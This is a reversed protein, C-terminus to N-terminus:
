RSQHCSWIEPNNVMTSRRDHPLAGFTTKCDTFISKMKKEAGNHRATSYALMRENYFNKMYTQLTSYCDFAEKQMAPKVGWSRVLLTDIYASVAPWSAVREAALERKIRLMLEDDGVTDEVLGMKGPSDWYSNIFAKCIAIYTEGTIRYGARKWYIGPVETRLLHITDGSRFYLCVGRWTDHERSRTYEARVFAIGRQTSKEIFGDFVNEFFEEKPRKGGRTEFVSGSESDALMWNEFSQELSRQLDSRDRWRMFSLHFPVDRDVGLYSAVDLSNSNSSLVVTMRDDRPYEFALEEEGKDNVLVTEATDLEGNPLFPGQADKVHKQAGLWFWVGGLLLMIVVITVTFRIRKNVSMRDLQRKRELMEEISGVRTKLEQTEGDESQYDDFNGRTEGEDYADAGEDSDKASKDVNVFQSETQFISSSTSTNLSSEEFHPAPAPAPKPASAKFSLAQPKIEHDGTPEDDFDPASAAPKAPAPPPEPQAPPPMKMATTAMTVLVDAPPVETAMSEALEGSSEPLLDVRIVAKSGAKILSGVKVPAVEGENVHKGDLEMGNRSLVKVVSDTARRVFEFHKGSVDPETLRIAASRSRGVLLSTFFDLSVERGAEEGGIITIKLMNSM